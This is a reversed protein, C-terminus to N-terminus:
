ILRGRAAVTMRASSRVDGQTFNDPDATAFLSTIEYEIEVGNTIPTVIFDTVAIGGDASVYTPTLGVPSSLTADSYLIRDTTEDLYVTCGNATRTNYAVSTTTTGTIATAKLLGEGSYGYLMFDATMRAYRQVDIYHLNGRYYDSAMVYIAWSGVIVMLAIWSTVLMEAITFGRKSFLAM